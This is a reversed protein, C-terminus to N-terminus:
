NRPEQCETCDIELVNELKKDKELHSKIIKNIKKFINKKWSKVNKELSVSGKNFFFDCMVDIIFFFSYYVCVYKDPSGLM